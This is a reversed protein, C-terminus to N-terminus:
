IKLILIERKREKFGTQFVHSLKLVGIDYLITYPSNIQCKHDKSLIYSPVNWKLM